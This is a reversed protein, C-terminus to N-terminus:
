DQLSGRVCACLALGTLRAISTRVHRQQTCMGQNLLDQALSNAYSLAKDGMFGQVNKFLRVAQKSFPLELLTLSIPIPDKTWSLMGQVVFVYV